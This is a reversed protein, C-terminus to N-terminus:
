QGAMAVGIRALVLVMSSSLGIMVALKASSGASDCAFLLKFVNM